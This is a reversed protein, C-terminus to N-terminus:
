FLKMIYGSIDIKMALSVLVLGWLFGKIDHHAGDRIHFDQTIEYGFVFVVSFIVALCPNWSSLWVTIGGHAFHQILRVTPDDKTLKM